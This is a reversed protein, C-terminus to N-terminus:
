RTRAHDRSWGVAASELADAINQHQGFQQTLYEALWEADLCEPCDELIVEGIWEQVMQEVPNFGQAPGCSPCAIDGCMCPGIM